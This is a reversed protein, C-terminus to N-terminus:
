VKEVFLATVTPTLCRAMHRHEEGDPIAVGDGARFVEVGDDFTIEFEGSLIQGFHGVSCWHPEMEASYEVLRLKQGQSSMIKHRVGPLPSSWDLREFDVRRATM